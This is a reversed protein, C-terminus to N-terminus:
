RAHADSGEHHAVLRAVVGLQLASNVAEGILLALAAGPAHFRTVLVQLLAFVLVLNWVAIGTLLRFRGAGQIIGALTANFTRFVLAASLLRLVPVAAAYAPLLRTLLPPALVGLTVAAVVGYALTAILYRVTVRRLSTGGPDHFLSSFRSFVSLGFSAAAIQFPETLRFAIGYLGVAAADLRSSLVLVDLRSYTMIVIGTIAIPLSRRALEIVRGFAPPAPGLLGEARLRVLLVVGTAAELLPFLAVQLRLDHLRPLAAAAALALAVNTLLVPVLVRPVSLRAQFLDLSYNTFLATAITLAVITGLTADFAPRTVVFWGAVASFVIAGLLLKSAGLAGAFRARAQPDAASAYERIALTDMGFDSIVKAIEAISVAFVVVGFAAPPVHRAIVFMLLLRAALNSARLTILAASNSLVPRDFRARLSLRVGRRAVRALRRAPRAM